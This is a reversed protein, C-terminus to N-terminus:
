FADDDPFEEIGSNQSRGGCQGESVLISEARGTRDSNGEYPPPPACMQYLAEEYHIVVASASLYSM